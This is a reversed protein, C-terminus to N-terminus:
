IRNRFHDVLKAVVDITYRIQEATHGSTLFFRLRAANEEVAPALISGV